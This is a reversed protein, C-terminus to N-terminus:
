FEETTITERYIRPNAGDKSFDLKLGLDRAKNSAIEYEERIYATKDQAKSEEDMAQQYSKLVARVADAAEQELTTPKEELFWRKAWVGPVEDLVYHDTLNEKVTYVKSPDWTTSEDFGYRRPSNEFNGVRKVRLVKPSM